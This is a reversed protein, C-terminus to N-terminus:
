QEGDAWFPLRHGGELCYDIVLRKQIDTPRAKCDGLFGFVHQTGNADKAIKIWGRDELESEDSGYLSVRAGVLNQALYQHGAYDCAYFKGEPSLWGFDSAISDSPSPPESMTDDVADPPEPLPEANGTAMKRREYAAVDPSYAERYIRMPKANKDKTVKPQDPWEYGEKLTRGTRNKETKRRPVIRLGTPSGLGVTDGIAMETLDAADDRAEDREKKLRKITDGVTPLNKKSSDAVMRVGDEDDSSGVLKYRGDLISLAQEQTIGQLGTMLLKLADDARDEQAWLSRAIDTLWDGDVSFHATGTNKKNAM